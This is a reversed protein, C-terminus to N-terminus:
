GDRLREKIETSSIPLLENNLLVVTTNYVERIHDICSKLEEEKYGPRSVIAYSFETLLAPADHWIEIKLFLIEYGIYLLDRHRPYIAKSNKRLTNLTYSIDDSELEM